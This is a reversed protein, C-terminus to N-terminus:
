QNIKFTHGDTSLETLFREFRNVAADHPVRENQGNIDLNQRFGDFISAVFSTCRRLRASQASQFCSVMKHHLNNIIYFYQVM